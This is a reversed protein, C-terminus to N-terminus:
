DTTPEGNQQLPAWARRVRRCVERLPLNESEAIRRCDEYEPECRVQEDGLFALKVRVDGWQTRVTEIRRRLKSRQWLNRRMGLTTTHRWLAEEIASLREPACLVDLKVGPRGKKMQIPTVFADLAGAKLLMETCFGIQEGTMDDLNTELVWVHDSETQGASPTRGIALRLVNPLAPIDRSGAGYGIREICMDPWHLSPRGLSALLAAGTPTALELDVPGGRTPLEKLLEATAPAPVPMTGHATSITGSGLSVTSFLVEDLGLSELGAVTGVIDCIADVAGVEHFHISDPDTGHVRAEAQALARFVACAKREIEGPLGGARIIELVDKLGRHPHEQAQTLVVEVRTAAIGARSVKEAKLEYGSVPLGSLTRRLEDPPVGADVLAGLCMDGSVGSFCDFYGIKM